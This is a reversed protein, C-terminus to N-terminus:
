FYYYYYLYLPNPPCSELEWAQHKVSSLRDSEHAEQCRQDFIIVQRRNAASLDVHGGRFRFAGWSLWRWGPRLMDKFHKESQNM